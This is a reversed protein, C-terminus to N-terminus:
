YNETGQKCMPDSTIHSFLITTAIIWVVIVIGSGLGRDDGTTLLM